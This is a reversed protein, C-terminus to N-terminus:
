LYRGRQEAVELRKFVESPGYGKLVLGWLQEFKAPHNANLAKKLLL